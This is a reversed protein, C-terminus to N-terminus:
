QSVITLSRAVALSRLSTVLGRIGISYYISDVGVSWLIVGNLMRANIM